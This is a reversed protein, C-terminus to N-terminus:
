RRPRQANGRERQGSSCRNGRSGARLLYQRWISAGQGLRWMLGTGELDPEPSLAVGLPSGIAPKVVVTGRWDEPLFHMVLEAKTVMSYGHLNLTSIFPESNVADKSLCNVVVHPMGNEEEEEGKQEEYERRESGGEERADFREGGGEGGEGIVEKDGEKGNDKNSTLAGLAEESFEQGQDGDERGVGKKWKGGGMQDGMGGEEGELTDNNVALGHLTQSLAPAPVQFGGSSRGGGEVLGEPVGKDVEEGLKKLGIVPGNSGRAVSVQEPVNEGHEVRVTNLPGAPGRSIATPAQSNARGGEEQNVSGEPVDKDLGEGLGDSKLVPGERKGVSSVSPQRVPEKGDSESVSAVRQARSYGVKAPSGRDGGSGASTQRGPSSSRVPSPPRLGNSVM